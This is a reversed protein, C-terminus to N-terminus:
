YVVCLVEGGLKAARAQRDSMVGKSTSLVSVGMGNLVKPLEDHGRYIRRGPKSTRSVHQIVKEGDPGYKLQVRLIKKV